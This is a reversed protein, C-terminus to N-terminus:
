LFYDGSKVLQLSKHQERKLVGGTYLDDFCMHLRSTVRAGDISYVRRSRLGAAM